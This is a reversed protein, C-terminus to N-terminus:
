CFLCAKDKRFDAARMFHNYSRYESDIAEPCGKDCSIKLTIDMGFLSHATCPSNTCCDGSDTGASIESGVGPVDPSNKFAIDLCNLIEDIAEIADCRQAQLTAM